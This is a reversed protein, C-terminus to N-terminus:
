LFVPRQRVEKSRLRSELSAGVERWTGYEYCQVMDGSAIDAVYYASYTCIGDRRHGKETDPFKGDTNRLFSLVIQINNSKGSLMASHEVHDIM